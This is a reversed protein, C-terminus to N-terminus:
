LTQNKPFISKMAAFYDEQLKTWSAELIEKKTIIIIDSPNKLLDKNRRFLSRIQRKIKNRKVAGCIKKSVVVAM